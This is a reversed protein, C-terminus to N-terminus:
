KPKYYLTIPKLKYEIDPLSALIAAVYAPNFQAHHERIESRTISKRMRLENLTNMIEQRNIRREIKNEHPRVIIYTDTCELIDFPKRRDLTKLSKGVLLKIQDWSDMKEGISNKSSM